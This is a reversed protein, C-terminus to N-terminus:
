NGTEVQAELIQAWGQLGLYFKARGLFSGWEQMKEEEERLVIMISVVKVSEELLKVPVNNNNFIKWLKGKM